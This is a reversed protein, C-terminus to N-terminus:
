DHAQVGEDNVSGLLNVGQKALMKYLTVLPLGVVNYYCGEIKEVLLAGKGQIGYGGAKDYPEKTNIYSDIESSTLNRFYVLTTVLENEIINTNLNYLCIGTMVKHSKGSLMTLFDFAEQRNNPKGLIIGSCVVITDASIIISDIPAIKAVAKAKLTAIRSVASSPSENALIEENIEATIQSYNVGLIDFLDQRRPSKSALVINSM